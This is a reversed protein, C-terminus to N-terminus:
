PPRAPHAEHDPPVPTVACAARGHARQSAFSCSSNPPGASQTGVSEQLTPDPEASGHPQAGPVPTESREAGTAGSVPSDGEADRGHWGSNRPDTQAGLEEMLDRITDHYAEEKDPPMPDVPIRPAYRLAATAARILISAGDMTPDDLVRQLARLASDTIPHPRTEYSPDFDTNRV